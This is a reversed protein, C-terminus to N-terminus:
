YTTDELTVDVGAVRSGDVGAARMATGDRPSRGRMLGLLERRHVAGGRKLGLQVLAAPSGHWRGGGVGDEDVGDEHELYHDGRSSTSTLYRAFGAASDGPIKRTTQV